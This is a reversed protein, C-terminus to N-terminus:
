IAEELLSEVSDMLASLDGDKAVVADIGAAKADHGIVSPHHSTLMVIPTQPLIHKLVRAAEIGNMQPMSLDLIILDPNLDKAKQIADYGDVAEGCVEFGSENELFDRIIKRIYAHDDVILICKPLECPSGSQHHVSSGV